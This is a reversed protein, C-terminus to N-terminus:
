VVVIPCFLFLSVRSLSIRPPTGLWIKKFDLLERVARGDLGAGPASLFALISTPVTRPSDNNVVLSRSDLQPGRRAGYRCCAVGKGDATEKCVRAFQFLTTVTSCEYGALKASGFSDLYKELSARRANVNEVSCDVSSFSSAWRYQLGHGYNQLGDGFNYVPAVTSFRHTRGPYGQTPDPRMRMDMVNIKAM